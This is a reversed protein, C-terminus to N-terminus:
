KMKPKKKPKKRKSKKKKKTKNEEKEGKMFTWEDDFFFLFLIAQLNIPIGCMMLAISPDCVGMRAGIM